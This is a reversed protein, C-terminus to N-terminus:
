EMLSIRSLKQMEINASFKQFLDNHFERYKQEANKRIERIRAPTVQVEQKELGLSLTCNVRPYLQLFKDSRSQCEFLDARKASSSELDSCHSVVSNYATVVHSGCSGSQHHTEATDNATMADKSGCAELLFMNIFVFLLTQKAM